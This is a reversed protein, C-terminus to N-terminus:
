RDSGVGFGVRSSSGPPFRQFSRRDLLQHKTQEDSLNRLAQRFLVRVMLGNSYPACGGKNRDPRPCAVNVAAAGKAFDVVAEDVRQLGATFRHLNQERHDQVSLADTANHKETDFM